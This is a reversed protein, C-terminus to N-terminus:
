NLVHKLGLSMRRNTKGRYLRSIAGGINANVDRLAGVLACEAYNATYEYEDRWDSRPPDLNIDRVSFASDLTQKDKLIQMYIKDKTGPSDHQMVATLQHAIEMYKSRAEQDKIKDEIRAALRNSSMASAASMCAILAAPLAATLPHARPHFSAVALLLAAPVLVKPADQPISPDCFNFHVRNEFAHITFFTDALQGVFADPVDPNAITKETKSM